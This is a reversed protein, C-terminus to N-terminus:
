RAISIEGGVWIKDEEQCISENPMISAISFSTFFFNGVLLSGVLLHTDYGAIGESIECDSKTGERLL